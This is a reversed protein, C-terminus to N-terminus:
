SIAAISYIEFASRIAIEFERERRAIDHDRTVISRTGSRGGNIKSYALSESKTAFATRGCLVCILVSASCISRVTVLLTIVTLSVVGHHTASHCTSPRGAASSTTTAAAPATTETATTTSKAPTTETAASIGSASIVKRHRHVKIVEQIVCIKTVRNAVEARQQESLRSRSGTAKTSESATTVRSIVPANIHLKAETELCQNLQYFALPM